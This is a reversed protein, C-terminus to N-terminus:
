PTTPRLQLSEGFVPDAAAAATLMEARAAADARDHDLRADLAERQLARLQRLADLLELVTGAGKRYALDANAAVREALPLADREIARRRAGAAAQADLLRQQDARAQQEIRVRSELATDRDAEARAIEGEFRHNVFLPVSVFAGLLWGGGAPPAYREVQVGISVDRTRLRTALRSQADAAAQQARAALLDPREAEGPALRAAGSVDAAPWPEAAQLMPASPEMALLSAIANRARALEGEGVVREAEARQVDLEIRAVDAAAVDGAKERRRAGDLTRRYLGLVEQQLALRQQAGWLDIWAQALALQQQRLTDAANWRAARWAQEASEIRLGRKNGREIPQDLRAVYDVQKDLVGGPGLGLVPNVSGIGVNLTPNPWQGATVIDARQSESARLALRLDRNCRALRRQAASWDLSPAPLAVCDPDPVATAAGLPRPAPWLPASSPTPTQAQAQPVSSPVPTQAHVGATLLGAWALIALRRCAM